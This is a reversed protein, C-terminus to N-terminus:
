REEDDPEKAVQCASESKEEELKSMVEPKQETEPKSELSSSSTSVAKDSMDSDHQGNSVVAPEVTPKLESEAEASSPPPTEPVGMGNMM